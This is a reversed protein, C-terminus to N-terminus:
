IPSTEPEEPMFVIKRYVDALRLVCEVGTLRVEADLGLVPRLLWSDDDQRAFHAIAPANQSVLLYDRLTAIQQYQEFKTEKDYRATSPLLVEIIVIPNIIVDCRRDHYQLDECAISIDPYAFLGSDDTRVKLDSGFVRCPTNLLAFTLAAGTNMAISSHNPSGGSMAYIQGHLYESKFDAEREIKLYEEPTFSRPPPVKAAVM